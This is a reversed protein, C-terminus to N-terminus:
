LPKTKIKFGHGTQPARLCDLNALDRRLGQKSARHHPIDGALLSTGASRCPNPHQHTVVPRRSDEHSTAWAHGPWFLGSTGRTAVRVVSQLVCAPGVSQFVPAGSASVTQTRATKLSFLALATPSIQGCEFGHM